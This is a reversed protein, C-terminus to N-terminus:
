GQLNFVAIFIITCKFSCLDAQANFFYVIADLIWVSDWNGQIEVLTYYVCINCRGRWDINANPHLHWVTLSLLTALIVLINLVPWLHPSLLRESIYTLSSHPGSFGLLWAPWTLSHSSPSHHHSPLSSHPWTSLKSDLINIKIPREFIHIKLWNVFFNILQMHKTDREGEKWNWKRTILNGLAFIKRIWEYM